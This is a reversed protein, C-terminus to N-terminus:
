DFGQFLELADDLTAVDVGPRAEEANADAGSLHREQVGEREGSESERTCSDGDLDENARTRTRARIGCGRRKAVDQANPERMQAGAYKLQFDVM